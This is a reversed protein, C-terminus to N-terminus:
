ELVEHDFSRTEKPAKINELYEVDIDNFDAALMVKRDRNKLRTYEGSSLMVLRDRGKSTVIVPEILALDQVRGWNRQVENSPLRVM